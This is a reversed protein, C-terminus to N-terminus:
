LRYLAIELSFLRCSRKNKDLNKIAVKNTGQVVADLPVEYFKLAERAAYAVNREVPPFLETDEHACPELREGNLLVGIELDESPEQTEVRLLARKFAGSATDDPIVIEVERANIARFTGFGPYVVYNKNTTRLFEVDTIGKLGAAMPVRHKGPVYDYNFLSLGDVGRHFLNLASARYVEFTTYRRKKDKNQYTVFNMEGYVKAHTVGKKFGEIDLEITHLFFSSVNVMDVLKAADWGFVDLGAKECKTPTEPIRV